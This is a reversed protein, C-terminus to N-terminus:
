NQDTSTAAHIIVKWSASRITQVRFFCAWVLMTLITIKKRFRVWPRIWRWPIRFAWLRMWAYMKGVSILNSSSILRHQNAKLCWFRHISSTRYPSTSNTFSASPQIKCRKRTRGTNLKCNAYTKQRHCLFQTTQKWNRTGSAVLTRVQAWLFLQHWWHM